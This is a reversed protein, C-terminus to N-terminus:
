KAAEYAALKDEYKAALRDMDAVLAAWIDDLHTELEQMASAREEIARDLEALLQSVAEGNEGEFKQAAAINRENLIGALKQQLEPIGSRETFAPKDLLVGKLYRAYSVLFVSPEFGLTDKVQGLLFGLLEQLITEYAERHSLVVAFREDLGDGAHDRLLEIFDVESRKLQGVGPDHVLMVFNANAAADAVEEPLSNMGNEPIHYSTYCVGRIDMSVVDDGQAGDRFSGTGSADTLANLLAGKGARRHGAVLIHMVPESHGAEEVFRDVLHPNDIYTKLREIAVQSFVDEM